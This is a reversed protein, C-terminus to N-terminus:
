GRGRKAAKEAKAARAAQSRRFSENPSEEPRPLPETASGVVVGKELVVAQPIWDKNCDCGCVWLKDYWAVERRCREHYSETEHVMADICYGCCALNLSVTRTGTWRDPSDVGPGRRTKAPVRAETPKPKEPEAATEVPQPAETTEPVEPNENTPTEQQM